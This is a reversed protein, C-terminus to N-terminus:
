IRLIFFPEFLVARLHLRSKHHFLNHTENLNNERYRRESKIYKIIHINCSMLKETFYSVLSNSQVRIVVASKISQILYANYHNDYCIIPLDYM